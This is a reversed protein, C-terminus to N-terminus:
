DKIDDETDPRFSVGGRLPKVIVSKRRQILPPQNRSSSLPEDAGDEALETSARDREQVESVTVQARRKPRNMSHSLKECVELLRDYKQKAEKLEEELRTCRRAGRQLERDSRSKQDLLTKYMSTLSTVYHEMKIVKHKISKASPTTEDQGLDGKIDTVDSSISSRKSADGFNMPTKNGEGSGTCDKLIEFAKQLGELEETKQKMLVEWNDRDRCAQEVENALRANDAETAERIRFLESINEASEELKKQLHQVQDLYALAKQNQNESGDSNATKVKAPIPIGKEQLLKELSGVRKQSELLALGKKELMLKLEEVSHETNVKAANKIMKARQGFRLTSVTEQVNYCSPSCTVILSTKANGGLSEQLVRTLKSDRYPVHTRSKTTLANIVLGLTSLSLNINIAEDLRKGTAGTKIIKESGALDVLHLKGTKTSKTHMSKQELTVTFVLHSRSSHENMDTRGTARHMHGAQFAEYVEEESGVSVLTLDEIYVTCGTRSVDERIRLDPHDPNLLDKIHENYIEFMSVRIVFEISDDASFIGDFIASVIRPIIGQKEPNVLDGEMTHTKGSSTQGYAFITGNFGQLVSEVTPKAVDEYVDRQTSDSGFAKDFSFCAGEVMVENASPLEVCVGAADGMAIESANLPRIRCFVKINQETADPLGNPVSDNDVRSTPTGNTAFSSPSGGSPASAVAERTAVRPLSSRANQPPGAKSMSAVRGRPSSPSTPGPSQPRRSAPAASLSGGTPSRARPSPQPAAGPGASLRSPQAGRYGGAKPPMAM